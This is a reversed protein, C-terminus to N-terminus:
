TLAIETLKSKNKSRDTCALSLQEAVSHSVYVTIKIKPDQRRRM